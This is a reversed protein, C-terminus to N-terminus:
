FYVRLAELTHSKEQPCVGIFILRNANAIHKFKRKECEMALTQGWEKAQEVMGPRLSKKAIGFACSSAIELM